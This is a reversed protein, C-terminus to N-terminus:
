IHCDVITITCNPDVEKLFKNFVDFWNIEDEISAGSIGFWGMEGPELWEGDPTLIAYTSLSSCQTAYNEKTKYKEIYYNKSYLTFPEKEGEKLPQNEVVLEWFRLAKDYEKKDISLDLEKVLCSDTREGDKTKLLNSWRGGIEYWDWKSDPNYTSLENGYEDYDKYAYIKTKYFDEDTKCELIEKEYENLKYSPNSMREMVEQKYFKAEEIMQEKTRRIYPEVEMNEDFPKLLDEFYDNENTFVAVTYHSM